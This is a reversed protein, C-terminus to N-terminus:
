SNAPFTLKLGDEMAKEYLNQNVIYDKHGETLDVWMKPGNKYSDYLERGLAYPVIEDKPSHLSILMSANYDKLAQRTDYVRGLIIKTIFGLVPQGYGAVEAVSTFTSDLVLPHAISKHRAVLQGAIGGGLSYGHVVIKQPDLKKNGVLFDWAAQANLVASELSPVGESLGFGQYDIAMVGLGLHHYSMIRGLMDVLNGGNGHLLLVTYHDSPGPLYWGNVKVGKEGSLWVEEFEWGSTKISMELGKVPYFVFRDRFFYGAALIVAALGM